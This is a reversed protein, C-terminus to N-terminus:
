PCNKNPEESSKNKIKRKKLFVIAKPIVRTIGSPM